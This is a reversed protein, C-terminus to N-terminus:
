AAPLPRMLGLAAIAGLCRPWDFRPGPDIKRGPAIDAHGVVYRLPYRRRLHAALAALRAYQVPEFPVHEDGELEIGISYDNCPGRGLLRSRGAHWARDDCSVYQTVAGARDVVFHASVQLGRLVAFAPDADPDLTGLFLREIADGGFRGPPLSIFHVVLTDVVAGAPRRNCHPSRRHRPADAEAALWGDRWDM